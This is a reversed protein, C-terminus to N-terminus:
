TKSWSGNNKQSPASCPLLDETFEKSVDSERLDWSTQGRAPSRSVELGLACTRRLVGLSVERRPPVGSLSGAAPSMVQKASRSRGSPAVVIGRGQPSVNYDSDKRCSLFPFRLALRSPPPGLAWAGRGPRGGPRSGVHARAPAAARVHPHRASM